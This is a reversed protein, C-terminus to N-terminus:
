ELVIKFQSQIMCNKELLRQIRESPNSELQQRYLPNSIADEIKVFVRKGSEGDVEIFAPVLLGEIEVEISEMLKRAQMERYKRADEAERDDKDTM